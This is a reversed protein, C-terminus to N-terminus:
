AKKQIAREGIIQNYLKEMQTVCETLCDWDCSVIYLRSKYKHKKLKDAVLQSTCHIHKVHRYFRKRMWRLLGGKLLPLHKMGIDHAINEPTYYFSSIYPVGMEEAIERVRMCLKFPLTLHVIDAGKLAARVKADDSRGFVMGKAKILPDIFRFVKTPISIKGEEPEGTAIVTVQHGLTRLYEVYRVAFFAWGLKKTVEVAEDYQDIVLVINM